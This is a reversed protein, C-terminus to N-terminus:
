TPPRVARPAFDDAGILDLALASGLSDALAQMSEAVTREYAAAIIERGEAQLRDLERMEGPTQAAHICTLCEPCRLEVMLDGDDRQEWRQPQILQSGCSPCASLAPM